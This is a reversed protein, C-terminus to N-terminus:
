EGAGLRARLAAIWPPPAAGEDRHAAELEDLLRRLARGREAEPLAAVMERLALEHIDKKDGEQAM